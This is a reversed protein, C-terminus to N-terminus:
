GTGRGGSGSSTSGGSSPTGDSGDSISFYTLSSGMYDPNVTVVVKDYGVTYYRGDDSKYQGTWFTRSIDDSGTQVDELYCLTDDPAGRYLFYQTNIRNITKPTGNLVDGFWVDIGLEKELWIEISEIQSPKLGFLQENEFSVQHWGAVVETLATFPVVEKIVRGDMEATGEIILDYNGNETAFIFGNRLDSKQGWQDELWVEVSSIGTTKINPSYKEGRYLWAPMNTDISPKEFVEIIYSYDRGNITAIIEVTGNRKPVFIAQNDSSSLKIEGANRDTVKWQIINQSLNVPGSATFIVKDGIEVRDASASISIDTMVINYNEAQQVPTFIAVVAVIVLIAVILAILGIETPHEGWMKKIDVMKLVEPAASNIEV